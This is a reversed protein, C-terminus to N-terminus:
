RLAQDEHAAPLSALVLRLGQMVSVAGGAQGSDPHWLRQFALVRGRAPLQSNGAKIERVTSWPVEADPVIETPV